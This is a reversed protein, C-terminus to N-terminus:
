LRGFLTANRLKGGPTVVSRDSIQTDWVWGGLRLFQLLGAMAGPRLAGWSPIQEHSIASARHKNNRALACQFFSINEDLFMLTM